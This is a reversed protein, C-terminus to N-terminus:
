RCCVDGHFCCGHRVRPKREPKPEDGGAPDGEEGEEQQEEDDLLAEIMEQPTPCPNRGKVRLVTMPTIGQLTLAEELTMSVPAHNVGQQQLLRLAAERREFQQQEQNNM